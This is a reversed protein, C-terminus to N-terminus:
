YWRGDRGRYGMQGPPPNFNGMGDEQRQFGFVPPKPQYGFNRSVGGFGVDRNITSGPGRDREFIASGKVTESRYRDFENYDSFSDPSNFSRQQHNRKATEPSEFNPQHYKSSSTPSANALLQAPTMSALSQNNKLISKPKPFDEPSVQCAVDFTMSDNTQTPVSATVKANRTECDACKYRDTQTFMTHTPTNILSIKTSPTKDTEFIVPPPPPSQTGSNRSEISPTKPLDEFTFEKGFKRLLKSLQSAMTPSDESTKSRNTFQFRVVPIKKLPSQHKHDIKEPKILKRVTFRSSSKPEGALEKIVDQCDSIVKIKNQINQPRSEDTFKGTLSLYDSLMIKKDNFLKSLADKGLLPSTSPKQLIQNHAIFDNPMPVPQPNEMMYPIHTPQLPIMHDPPIFGLSRPPFMPPGMDSQGIFFQQDYDSQPPIILTQPIFNQPPPVPTPLFGSLLASSKSLIDPLTDKFLIKDEPKLKDGLEQLFTKNRRPSRSRSRRRLWRERESIDSQPTKSRRRRPSRSVSNRRRIDRRDDIRRNRKEGGPQSIRRPSRTRSRTKQPRRLPSRRRIPSRRIREPSSKRHKRGIEQSRNREVSRRIKQLKTTVTSSSLKIIDVEMEMGPPVLGTEVVKLKESIFKAKQDKACKDKDRLIDRQTKSPDRRDREKENQDSSRHRRPSKTRQCKRRPSRSKQPSKKVKDNKKSEEEDWTDVVNLGDIFDENMFDDFFNEPVDEELQQEKDHSPDSDNEIETSKTEANEM